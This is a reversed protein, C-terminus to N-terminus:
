VTDDITMGGPLGDEASLRLELIKDKGVAERLARLVKLPFRARNEINGGYEDIRTNFHPSVFQQFLFGHGAHLLIGDFNAAMMFRAARTLDNTIQAARTLDNTIKDMMAEDMALVEVGDELTFAVPGWPQYPPKVEAYAVGHGFEVLAIAGHKKIRNAYERYGEFYRGEYKAYDIPFNLICDGEEANVAM